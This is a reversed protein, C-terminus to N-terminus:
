RAMAKEDIAMAALAAATDNPMLWTKLCVVVFTVLFFLLAIEAFVHLEVLSIVERLM